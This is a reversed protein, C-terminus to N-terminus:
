KAARRNGVQQVIAAKQYQMDAVQSRLMHQAAQLSQLLAFALVNV